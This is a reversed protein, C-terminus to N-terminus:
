IKDKLRLCCWGDPSGGLSSARRSLDLEIRTISDHDPIMYIKVEAEWMDREEYYSLCVEYEKESVARAFELSQAREPFIFQFEIFRPKSLSDGGDYLRRLIRGNEDDPIDRMIEGTTMLISCAILLVMECCSDANLRASDDRSPSPLLRNVM